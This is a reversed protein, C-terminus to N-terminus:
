TGEPPDIGRQKLKAAARNSYRWEEENTLLNLYPQDQREQGQTDRFLPFSSIIYTPYDPNGKIHLVTFEGYADKCVDIKIWARRVVYTSGEPIEEPGDPSTGTEAKSRQCLQERPDDEQQDLKKYKFYRRWM